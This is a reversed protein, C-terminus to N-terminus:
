KIINPRNQTGNYFLKYHKKCFIPNYIPVNANYLGACNSCLCCDRKDKCDKCQCEKHNVM